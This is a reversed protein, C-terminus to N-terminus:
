NEDGNVKEVRVCDYKKLTMVVVTIVSVFRALKLGWIMIGFRERTSFTKGNKPKPTITCGPKIMEWLEKFSIQGSNKIIGLIKEEYPTLKKGEKPPAIYYINKIDANNM